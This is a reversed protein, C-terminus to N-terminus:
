TEHVGCYFRMLVKALFPPDDLLMEQQVIVCHTAARVIKARSEDLIEDIIAIKSIKPGFTLCVAGNCSLPSKDRITM